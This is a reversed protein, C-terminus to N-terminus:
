TNTHRHACTIDVKRIHLESPIGHFVLGETLLDVIWGDKGVDRSFPGLLSVGQSTDM